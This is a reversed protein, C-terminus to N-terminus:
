YIVGEDLLQVYEDPPIKLLENYVYDNHEGMFPFRRQFIAPTASLRASPAEFTYPEMGQEPSEWFHQRHALQPDHYVDRANKVVGAAIGARQLKVMLDEAVQDKTWSEMLRDLDPCSRLRGALTAFNPGKSWPPNGMVDCLNKWEQETFTTIALWRENGACRYVGHPAAAPHSNGRRTLVRKNASYDAVATDLIDLCGQFTSADIFMGKGTQRRHELAAILTVVWMWPIYHDCFASAPSVPKRDPWGTIHDIGQMAAIVNGQGRFGRYPGDQGAFSSSLMIIDPKVKVMEDYGLGLRQIVGVTFNETVIDAMAVLRKAIAVGGPKKLNILVSLKNQNYRAFSLNSDPDRKDGAFLETCRIFDIKSTSEVKIVEAGFDAMYSTAIPDIGGAGFDIIRTGALAMERNGASM